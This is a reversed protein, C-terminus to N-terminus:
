QDSFMVLRDMIPKTGEDERVEGVYNTRIMIKIPPLTSKFCTLKKEHSFSTFIFYAVGHHVPLLNIILRDIPMSNGYKILKVNLDLNHDSLLVLM